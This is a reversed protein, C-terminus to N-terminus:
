AIRNVTLHQLWKTNAAPSLSVAREDAQGSGLLSLQKSGERGESPCGVPSNFLEKWTANV